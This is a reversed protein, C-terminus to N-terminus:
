IVRGKKVYKHFAHRVKGVRCNGRALIRKAAALGLPHFVHTWRMALSGGLALLGALGASGAVALLKNM